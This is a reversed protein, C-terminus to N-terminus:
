GQFSAGIVWGALPRLFGRWGFGFGQSVLAMSFFMCAALARFWRVCGSFFLWITWQGFGKGAFRQDLIAGAVM